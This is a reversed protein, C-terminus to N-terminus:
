QPLNDIYKEPTAGDNRDQFPSNSPPGPVLSLSSKHAQDAVDLSRQFPTLNEGNLDPFSEIAESPAQANVKLLAKLYDQEDGQSVFPSRSNGKDTFFSGESAPNQGVPNGENGKVNRDFISTKDKLSM